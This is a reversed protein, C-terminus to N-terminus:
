SSVPQRLIDLLASIVGDARPTLIVPSGTLIPQQRWTWTPEIDTAGPYRLSRSRIHKSNEDDWWLEVVVWVNHCM